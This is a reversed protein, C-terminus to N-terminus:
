ILLIGEKENATGNSNFILCDLKVLAGLGQVYFMQNLMFFNKPPLVLESTSYHVEILM